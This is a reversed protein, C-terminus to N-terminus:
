PILERTQARNRSRRLPVVPGGGVPTFVIDIQGAVGSASTMSAAGGGSGGGARQGAQGNQGAGGGVGGAVNGSGDLGAAGGAITTANGGTGGPGDATGPGGGGGGRGTVHGSGGDGGNNGGDGIGNAHLGGTGGPLRAGTAAAGGGPALCGESPTTPTAGTKSIWLDTAANGPSGPTGWNITLTAGLPVVLANVYKYAGGGGGAQGGTNVGGGSSNGTVGIYLPSGLTNTWTDGDAPRLTVTPM